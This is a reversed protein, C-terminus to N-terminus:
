RKIKKLRSNTDETQFEVGYKQTVLIREDFIVPLIQVINSSRIRTVCFYPTFLYCQFQQCKM